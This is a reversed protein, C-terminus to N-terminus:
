TLRLVLDLGARIADDLVALAEEVLPRYAEREPGRLAGAAGKFATRVAPLEDRLFYGGPRQREGFVPLEERWGRGLGWTLIARVESDRLRNRQAVVEALEEYAGSFFDVETLPASDLCEGMYVAMMEDFLAEDARDLSEGTMAREVLRRLEDAEIGAEEDCELLRRALEDSDGSQWLDNLPQLDVSYAYTRAPMHM